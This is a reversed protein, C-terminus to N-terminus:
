FKHIFKAIDEVYNLCDKEKNLKEVIASGIIIGDVYEIIKSIQIKNSFGFGAYLPIDGKVESIRKLKGIIGSPLGKRAGTVGTVSVYYLFGKTQDAIIRIRELPTLPSIM